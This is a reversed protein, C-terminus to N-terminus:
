PTPVAHGPSDESKGRVARCGRTCPKLAVLHIQASGPQRGCFCGPAQDLCSWVSSRIGLAFRQPVPDNALELARDDVNQYKREGEIQQREQEFAAM